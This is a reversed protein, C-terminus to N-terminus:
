GRIRDLLRGAFEAPSPAQAIQDRLTDLATRHHGDALLEALAQAATDPRRGAGTLTIGAGGAAVGHGTESYVPSQPLVLQPVGCHVATMATGAGGHHVVADCLPLLLHFPVSEVVKMRDPLEPLLHRQGPGIALIVEADVGDTMAAMDGIARTVTEGSSRSLAIGSTFCIRPRRRGDAPGPLGRPVAGPGNYPVYGIPLRDVEVTDGLRMGPPTPDILTRTAPRPTAGYSAFLELYGPLYATGRRDALETGIVTGVEWGHAVSPVGLVAALVPGAFSLPDHVVIDPRWRTAFEVLDGLMADAVVLQRTTAARLTRAQADSLVEPRSAWGAAWDSDYWAKFDERRGASKLDVPHGVPVAPLGAHTIAQECSPPAAVRVDHGASRLAWALPVMPFLHGPAAWTVFLM